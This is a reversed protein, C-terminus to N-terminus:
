EEMASFEECGYGSRQYQSLGVPCIVELLQGLEAVHALLYFDGPGSELLPGTIPPAGM